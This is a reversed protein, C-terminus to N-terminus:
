QVRDSHGDLCDLLTFMLVVIWFAQPVVSFVNLVVRVRPAQLETPTPPREEVLRGAVGLADQNVAIVEENSLISWTDASMNRLDTSIILPAKFLSWISM